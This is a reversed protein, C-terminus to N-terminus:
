RRIRSPDIVVHKIAERHYTYTIHVLGDSSQIVAPYSYEGETNELVMINHWLTGDSSIAVNLPTRGETTDNYVLLQRGDALTLADIGSNPNRLMTPALDSWTLGNDRSWTTAIVRSQTRCLAQLRGDSRKLITPQIAHLLQPDHVPGISQWTKGGDRTLNFGVQWQASEDSTPCLLSGDDLRLPKNKIPGLIGSRLRRPTSWTQGGNTSEIVMGWWTQPSPGVKYFLQLAGKDQQYLVPNWTPYQVGRDAKGDAVKVPGTWGNEKKFSVWIAVQPHREYEGAFWSAVLGQPTEVITSAHCQPTPRHELDFVFEGVVYGPQSAIDQIHHVTTTQARLFPIIGCFPVLVAILNRLVM